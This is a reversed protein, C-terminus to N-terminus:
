SYYGDHVAKYLRQRPLVSLRRPVAVTSIYIAGRGAAKCVEKATWVYSASTSPVTLAKSGGGIPHLINFRFAPDEKMAKKFVSRMEAKTKDEDMASTLHIKGILGRRALSVRNTGVTHVFFINAVM